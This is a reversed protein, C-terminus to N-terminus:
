QTPMGSTGEGQGVSNSIESEGTTPTERYHSQFYLCFLDSELRELSPDTM